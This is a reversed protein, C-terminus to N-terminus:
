NLWQLNEKEDEAYSLEIALTIAKIAEEKSMHMMEKATIVFLTVLVSMAMEVEVENDIFLDAIGHKLMDMEDKTEQDIQESSKVNITM